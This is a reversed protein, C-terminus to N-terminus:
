RGAKCTLISVNARKQSGFLWLLLSRLTLVDDLLRDGSACGPLSQSPVFFTDPQSARALRIYAQSLHGPTSFDVEPLRRRQGKLLAGFRTCRRGCCGTRSDPQPLRAFATTKKTRTSTRWSPM